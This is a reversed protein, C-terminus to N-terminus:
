CLEPLEDQETNTDVRPDGMVFSKCSGCMMESHETVEIWHKDTDNLPEPMFVGRRIDSWARRQSSEKMKSMGGIIDASGTTADDTDGHRM